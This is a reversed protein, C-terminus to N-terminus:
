VLNEYKKPCRKFHFRFMVPGKGETGCHPCKMMKMKGKKVFRKKKSTKKEWQFKDNLKKRLKSLEKKSTTM